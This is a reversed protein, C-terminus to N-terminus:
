TRSDVYQRVDACIETCLKVFSPRWDNHLTLPNIWSIERLKSLLIPLNIDPSSIMKIDMDTRSIKTKKSPFQVMVIPAVRHIAADRWDVIDDVLQRFGSYTSFRMPNSSEFNKWFKGKSFDQERSTLGLEYVDNLSIACADIFSKCTSLYAVILSASQISARFPNDQGLSESIQDAFFDLDAMRRCLNEILSLERSQLADDATPFHLGIFEDFELFCEPLLDSIFRYQTRNYFGSTM